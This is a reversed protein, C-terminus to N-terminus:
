EIPVGPPVIAMVPFGSKLSFTGFVLCFISALVWVIFFVTRRISAIGSEAPESITKM